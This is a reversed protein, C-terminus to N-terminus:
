YELVQRTAWLDGVEARFAFAVAFSAQIKLLLDQIQRQQEQTNCRAAAIRLPVLLLLQSINSSHVASACHELIRLGYEEILPRSLIPTPISYEQWICDYDYVGSLYISTAFYYIQALITQEDDYDEPQPRFIITALDLLQLRLGFGDAAFCQLQLVYENTTM